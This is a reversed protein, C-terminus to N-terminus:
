DLGAKRHQVIQDAARRAGRRADGGTRAFQLARPACSIRTGSPLPPATSTGAAPSASNTGAGGSAAMWGTPAFAQM